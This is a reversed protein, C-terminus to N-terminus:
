WSVEPPPGPGWRINTLNGTNPDISFTLLLAAVQPVYLFNGSPSIIPSGPNAGVTFPSNAMATLAGTNSNILYGTITNVGSNNTYLKTGAPNMTIGSPGTGTTAGAIATLAGTTPGITYASITDATFNGVYCYRFTPDLVLPFAGSGAAFPSGSIQTLGGTNINLSYVVVNDAAEGSLYIFYLPPGPAFGGYTCGAIIAICILTVFNFAIFMKQFQFLRPGVQAQPSSRKQEARSTKM